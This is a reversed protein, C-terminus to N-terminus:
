LSFDEIMKLQEAIESNTKEMKKHTKQDKEQDNLLKQPKMGNLGSGELNETDSDNGDTIAKTDTKTEASMMINLIDEDELHSDMKEIMVKASKTLARQRKKSIPKTTNKKISTIKSNKKVTTGGKNM